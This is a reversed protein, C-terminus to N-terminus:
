LGGDDTSCDDFAVFGAGVHDRLRSQFKNAASKFCVTAKTLQNATIQAQLGAEIAEARDKEVSAAVEVEDLRTKAGKVVEDSGNSTDELYNYFSASLGEEADMRDSLDTLDGGTVDKIAKRFSGEVTDDGNITELLGENVGAKALAADAVGKAEGALTSAADASGKVENIAGVLTGKEATALDAKFGTVAQRAAREADASDKVSKAVSGEVTVDGNLISLDGENSGVRGSLDSVTGEIATKNDAVTQALTSVSGEVNGIRTNQAAQEDAIETKYTALASRDAEVKADVAATAAKNEAIRDFLSKVVDDSASGIVENIALIKEAISESDLEGVETIKQLETQMAVIDAAQSQIAGTNADIKGELLDYLEVLTIGLDDAFALMQADLDEQSVYTDAM